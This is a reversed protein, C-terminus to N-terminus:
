RVAKRLEAARERAHGPMRCDREYHDLLSYSGWVPHDCLPCHRHTAARDLHLIVVSLTFVAVLLAGLGILLLWWLM